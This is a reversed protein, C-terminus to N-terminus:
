RFAGLGASSGAVVVTYTGSPTVATTAGPVTSEPLTRGSGCGATALLLMLAVGGRRRKVFLLPLLAALWVVQRTWPM